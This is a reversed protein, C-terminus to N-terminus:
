NDYLNKVFTIEPKNFRPFERRFFADAGNRDIADSSLNEWNRLIILRETFLYYIYDRSINKNFIELVFMSFM